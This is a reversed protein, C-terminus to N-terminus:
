RCTYAVISFAKNPAGGKIQKQEGAALKKVTERGLKLQGVKVRGKEEERASERVSRQKSKTVM